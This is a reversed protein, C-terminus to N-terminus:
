RISWSDGQRVNITGELFGTPYSSRTVRSISRDVVMGRSWRAVTTTLSHTQDSKSLTLLAMNEHHSGMFDLSCTLTWSQVSSVGCCGLEKRQQEECECVCRDCGRALVFSSPM